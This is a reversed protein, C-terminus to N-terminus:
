CGGHCYTLVDVCLCYCQRYVFNDIYTAHVVCTMIIPQNGDTTSSNHNATPTLRHTKGATAHFGHIHTIGPMVLLSINSLVDAHFYSSIQPKVTSARMLCCISSQVPFLLLVNLTSAPLLPYVSGVNFCNFLRTTCSCVCVCFFFFM